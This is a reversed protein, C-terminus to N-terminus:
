QNAIVLDIKLLSSTVTGTGKCSVKLKTDATTIPFAYRYGWAGSSTDLVLKSKNLIQNASSWETVSHEVYNTGDQSVLITIIANTLSGITFWINLAAQTAKDIAVATTEVEGTTLVTSARINHIAM